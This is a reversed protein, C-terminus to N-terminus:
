RQAGLAPIIVVDGPGVTSSTLGNYRRIADWDSANGYYRRAFTRLDDGERVVVVDLVDEEIAALAARRRSAAEQRLARAARSARRQGCEISIQVAPSVTTLDDVEDGLAIAGSVHSDIELALEDAQEHLISMTALARRTTELPATVGDLSARVADASQSISAQLDAIGRDISELFTPDLSDVADFSLAETATDLKAALAATSRANDASTPSPLAEAGEDQGIWDFQIEWHCDNETDWEQNFEIIRGIRVLHWLSVRVPMGRVRMDDVLKCLEAVSAIANDSVVIAEYGDIMESTASSVSAMALTGSSRDGLFRDNWEGKLTSPLEEAGLAQQGSNPSGVYGTHVVNHKGGVKFPRECIARDRLSLVREDGALERIELTGGSV